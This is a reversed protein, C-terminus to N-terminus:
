LKYIIYIYIFKNQKAKLTDILGFSEDFKTAPFRALKKLKFNIQQIELILKDLNTVVVFLSIFRLDFNVHCTVKV